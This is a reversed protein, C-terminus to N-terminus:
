FSLVTSSFFGVCNPVVDFDKLIESVEYVKSADCKQGKSEDLQCISDARLAKEERVDALYSGLFNRIQEPDYSSNHRSNRLRFCHM